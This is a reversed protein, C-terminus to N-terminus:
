ISAGSAWGLGADQDLTCDVGQRRLDEVLLDCIERDVAPTLHKQGDLLHAVEGPLCGIWRALSQQALFRRESSVEAKLQIQLRYRPPLPHGQEIGRLSAATALVVLQDGAALVLDPPPLLIPEHYRPRRLSVGTVGYGNELRSINLGCLNDQEQLRYRVILLHSGQLQL